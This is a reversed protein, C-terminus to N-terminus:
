RTVRKREDTADVLRAAAISALRTISARRYREESSPDGCEYALASALTRVPDGLDYHRARMAALAADADRECASVASMRHMAAAMFSAWAAQEAHSRFTVNGDDSETAM